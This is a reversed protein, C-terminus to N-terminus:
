YGRVVSRDLARGGSSYTRDGILFGSVGPEIGSVRQIPLSSKFNAREVETLESWKDSYTLFSYFSAGTIDARPRIRGPDDDNASVGFLDRATYRLTPEIWNGKRKFGYTVSGLYGAKMLEIAETEYADIDDTDPKGYFRRVRNLDASIKAALYTAHTATFTITETYSSTM